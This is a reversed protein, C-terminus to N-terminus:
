PLCFDQWQQLERIKRKWVRENGLLYGARMPYEGVCALLMLLRHVRTGDRIFIM